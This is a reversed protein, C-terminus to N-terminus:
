ALSGARGYNHYPTREPANEEIPKKKLTSLKPHLRGLRLHNVADSPRRLYDGLVVLSGRRSSEVHKHEEAGQGNLNDYADNWEVEDIVPKSTALNQGVPSQPNEMLRLVNQAASACSEPIAEQDLLSAGFGGCLARFINLLSDWNSDAASPIAHQILLSAKECLNIIHSCQTSDACNGKCISFIQQGQLIKRTPGNGRLPDHDSDRSLGHRREIWIRSDEFLPRLADLLRLSSLCPDKNKTGHDLIINISPLDGNLLTFELFSTGDRFTELPHAVHPRFMKLLAVSNTKMALHLPTVGSISPLNVNAGYKLLLSVVDSRSHLHTSRRNDSYHRVALHLPTEGRNNKLDVLAGFKTVLNEVETAAQTRAAIHLPMEGERGKSNVDGLLNCISLPCNEHAAALQLPLEDNESRIDVTAGRIILSKAMAFHKAKVAHHLPTWGKGDREDLLAGKKVLPDICQIPETIAQALLHLPCEGAMSKLNPDCEQALLVEISHKGGRTCAWHLANQGNESKAKVSAGHNLLLETLQPAYRVAYHLPTQGTGTAAEVGAGASLLEHVCDNNANQLAIHLPTVLIDDARNVMMIKEAKTLSVSPILLRLADLNSCDAAFYVATRGNADATHFDAGADCLIKLINVKKNMTALHLPTLGAKSKHNVSANLNQDSFQALAAQVVIESKWLIAIHLPLFGEPDLLPLPSLGMQSIFCLLVM